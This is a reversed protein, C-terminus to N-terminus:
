RVMVMKRTQVDDGARLRSFYVGSAVERGAEDKGDWVVSYEGAGQTAQV